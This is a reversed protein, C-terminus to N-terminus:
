TAASDRSGQGNGSTRDPLRGLQDFWRLPPTVEIIRSLTVTEGVLHLALVFGLGLAVGWTPLLRFCAIGVVFGLVNSGSDGLMARERLDLPLIAIAAGLAAPVLYMHFAFRWETLMVPGLALFFYKLARGPRVDFLNWLNTAGAVFPIALALRLGGSGLAAAVLWAAVTAAAVKAIGTTIRGHFLEGFHGILGRRSGARYDDLLGSAFVVLLGLIVALPRWASVGLREGAWELLFDIVLVVGVGIAFAPGLALYLLSGRYNPAVPARPRSPLAIASFAVIGGVAMALIFGLGTM